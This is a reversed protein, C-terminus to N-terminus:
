IQNLPIALDVVPHRSGFTGRLSARGTFLNIQYLRARGGVNLVALARNDVARGARVTAYIDFGADGAADAVLKGSAVLPGANPPSQVVVQDLTTDLDFLTTATDAHLDNNTYAAGSIGTAPNLNLPAPYNLDTDETAMGTDVNVRLDQGADSIVRLRDVTPNFDVDFASGDLAVSLQARRTASADDLSIEYLGGANGLGWLAGTAPRVDIGVLRTDGDLGGVAGIETALAPVDEDFCILRQDTTLGVARLGSFARISPFFVPAGCRPRTAPGTADAATALALACAGALIYTFRKM